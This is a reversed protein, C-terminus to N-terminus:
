EGDISVSAIVGRVRLQHVSSQVSKKKLGTAVELQRATVPKDNNRGASKGIANFVVTDNGSPITEVADAYAKRTAMNSGLKLVYGIRPTIDRPARPQTTATPSVPQRGGIPQFPAGAEMQPRTPLASGILPRFGFEHQIADALEARLADYQALLATLQTTM